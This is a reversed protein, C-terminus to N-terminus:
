LSVALKLVRSWLSVHVRIEERVDQDGATPNRLADNLSPKCAQPQNQAAHQSSQLGLQMPKFSSIRDVVRVLQVHTFIACSSAHHKINQTISLFTKPSKENENRIPVDFASYFKWHM